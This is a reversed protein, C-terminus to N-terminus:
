TFVIFLAFLAYDEWTHFYGKIKPPLTPGNATPLTLSPFAQITLIIANLIILILIFPETLSCNSSCTALFFIVQVYPHVLFKFLLLRITNEPGLFGLAYGRIPFIQKLDPQMPGDEGEDFPSKKDAEGDGLRLQGELGNNALNVVRLSMRRLNKAMSKVVTETTKLPSIPVNYQLNKARARPSASGYEPDGNSYLDLGGTRSDGHSVNSTLHACDDERAGEDTDHESNPSAILSVTSSELPINSELIQPSGYYREPDSKLPENFFTYGRGETPMASVKASFNRSSTSQPTMDLDLHVPELGSKVSEKSRNGWSRRRTLTSYSPELSPSPPAPVHTSTGSLDILTNTQSRSPSTFNDQNEMTLPFCYAYVADPGSAYSLRQCIKMESGSRGIQTSKM